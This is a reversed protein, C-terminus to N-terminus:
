QEAAHCSKAGGNVGASQLPKALKLIVQLAISRMLNGDGRLHSPRHQASPGTLGFREKMEDSRVCTDGTIRAVLDEFVREFAEKTADDSLAEAQAPPLLPRM